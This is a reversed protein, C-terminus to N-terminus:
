VRRLGISDGCFEPFGSSGACKLHFLAYLSSDVEPLRCLIREDCAARQTRPGLKRPEPDNV